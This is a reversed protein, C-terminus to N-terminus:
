LIKFNMSETIMYLAACIAVLFFLFVIGEVIMTFLTKM